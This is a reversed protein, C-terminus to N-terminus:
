AENELVKQMFYALQRRWWCWDHDVDYGWYDFWAPVHKSCLIEDLHRTSELLEDEWRGQGVCVIIRRQRYRQMWPHDEPMNALFDEPSNAYTLEDHYNGFGYAAHYLGSLAILTDFVDPRRFFFNGAHFGGMSCGTVIFTEEPTRQLSSLLEDMIYHFWKEHLEIRSRCDGGRNSWTEGDIGDVCIVHIQGREIWPALVDIMGFNEYDFFRGDQSPFVLVGRGETGYTKYEMDRNLSKSFTKQYNIEMKKDKKNYM